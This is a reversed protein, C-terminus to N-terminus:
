KRRKIVVKNLLKEIQETSPLFELVAFWVVLPWGIFCFGFTMVIDRVRISRNLFYYQHFLAYFAVIFGIWTYIAIYTIM